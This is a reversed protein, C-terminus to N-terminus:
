CESKEERWLNESKKGRFVTGAKKGQSTSALRRGRTRGPPAAFARAPPIDMVAIIGDDDVDADDPAYEYAHADVVAVDGLGRPDM